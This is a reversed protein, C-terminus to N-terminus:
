DSVRPSVYRKAKILGARYLNGNKSRVFTVGGVIARKPTSRITDVTGSVFKTAYLLGLTKGRM